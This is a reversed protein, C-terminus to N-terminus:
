SNLIDLQLGFCSISYFAQYSILSVKVRDETEKQWPNSESRDHCSQKGVDMRQSSEHSQYSNMGHYGLHSYSERTM